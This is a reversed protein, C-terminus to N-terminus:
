LLGVKGVTKDGVFSSINYLVLVETIGHAEAYEAVNGNYYRLDLMSISDFHGYLFPVFCNAYSDKLILIHEGTEPTKEPLIRVEGYNGGLFAAYKDKKLLSDRDYFGDELQMETGDCWVRAASGAKPIYFKVTDFPADLRLVKSYLTGRFSDSATIVDYDSLARADRGTSACWQVYAAYASDTTWHHDTKYYPYAVTGIAESPDIVLFNELERLAASIVESEDFSPANPPLKEQLITAATPVPMFCLRGPDTGRESLATFYKNLAALNKQYITREVDHDTKKEIYYDDKCFYVGNAEDIGLAALITSKAGILFERGMLRDSVYAEMEKEFVGSVVSDATFDPLEQLYRNENESFNKDRFLFSGASFFALFLLFLAITIKNKM